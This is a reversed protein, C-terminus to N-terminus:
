KSTLITPSNILNFSVSKTMSFIHNQPVTGFGAINMRNKKLAAASFPTLFNSKGGTPGVITILQPM